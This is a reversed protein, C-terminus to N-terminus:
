PQVMSSKMKMRTQVPISKCSDLYELLCDKEREIHSISEDFMHRVDQSYLKNFENRYYCYSEEIENKLANWYVMAEDNMPTPYAEFAMEAYKIFEDKKSM